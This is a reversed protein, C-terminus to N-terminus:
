FLRCLNKPITLILVFADANKRVAIIFEFQQPNMIRRYFGDQRKRNCSAFKIKCKKSDPGIIFIIFFSLIYLLNPFGNVVILFQNFLFIGDQYTIKVGIGNPVPWASDAIM